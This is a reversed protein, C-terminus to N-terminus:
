GKQVLLDHLCVLIIHTVHHWGIQSRCLETRVLETFANSSGGHKTLYDDYENENPYKASGMFLMHELYHSLGQM